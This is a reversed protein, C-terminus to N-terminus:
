IDLLDINSSQFEIKRVNHLQQTLYDITLSKSQLQIELKGIIKKQQDILEKSQILDVYYNAKNNNLQILWKQHAKSKTHSSFKSVTEYVKDRRAGCVCYIGHKILPIKDVYSGEENVIPCYTDPTISVDM